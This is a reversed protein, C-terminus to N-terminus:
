FSWPIEDADGAYDRGALRGLLQVAERAGLVNLGLVPAIGEWGSRL